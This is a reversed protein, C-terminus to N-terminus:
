PRRRRASGFRSSRRSGPRTSCPTACTTATSSCCGAWHAASAPRSPSRPSTTTTAAPRAAAGASSTSRPLAAADQSRARGWCSPILSTHRVIADSVGTLLQTRLMAGSPSIVVGSPGGGGGDGGGDPVPAPPTVEEGLQQTSRHLRPVWWEPAVFYLLKDVDFISRVLESVVHRSQESGGVGMLQRILRRYVVTREEERLAAAPRAEIGSALEIRERSSKLYAEKFRRAKEATYEAVRADYQVKAADASAQTPSWTLTAKANVSDRGHWHVYDLHATFRGRSSGEDSALDRASIKADDGSTAITVSTLTYGPSKFMVEQPFNSEVHETSDLWGVETESGDTYANDTDDTDLGVFPISFSIDEQKPTPAEPQDPQVLDALEPPEGMHVFEGVGLAKGPDDVFTHWCLQVGIDQVQVGVKRMKRRLEYNVLRPSTNAIVYRRSTTDTLETSTRFTTKFNRKIESSLKESQQRMHKHTAERSTKKAEDLSFSATATDEFVKASYKATNTVGFKVESSNDEKVADAIDDQTTLQSEQRQVTEVSSEFTKETTVKRTNVEVLEVTGGPSIWVHGVPPGLFSDFEFFYERYLHVVGIPSLVARYNNEGFSLLPDVRTMATAATAAEPFFLQRLGSPSHQGLFVLYGAIRAEKEFLAAVLQHRDAQPGLSIAFGELYAKVGPHRELEEPERVLRQLDELRESLRDFSVLRSWDAPPEDGVEEAVLQAIGSQVAAAVRPKELEPLVLPRLGEVEFSLGGALNNADQRGAVRVQVESSLANLYRSGVADAATGVARRYRQETLKSVWGLLPQYIGFLESAYPLTGTFRDTEAM